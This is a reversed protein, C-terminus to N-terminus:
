SAPPKPCGDAAPRRRFAAVLLLAWALATLCSHVFGLAGYVMRMQFPGNTMGARLMQPVVAYVIAFIVAIFLCILCALLVLLASKPDRRWFVLALLVGLGWTALQPLQTGLTTLLQTLMATMEMEM